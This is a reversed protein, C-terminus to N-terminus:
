YVKLKGNALYENKYYPKYKDFVTELTLGTEIDTLVDMECDEVKLKDSTYAEADNDWIMSVRIKKFNSGKLIYMYPWRELEVVEKFKEFSYEVYEDKSSDYPSFKSNVELKAMIDDLAVPTGNEIAIFKEAISKTFEFNQTAPNYFYYYKGENVDQRVSRSSCDPYIFKAAWKDFKGVYILSDNNRTKYTVGPRLDKVKITKNDFLRNSYEEIEAYDPCDVPVLVLETGDWGYTFEGDLGKGRISNTNELIYLLNPITIEVEFGRPDQVRVYLQRQNWCSSYGGVKKSLVFGRTPLNDYHENPINEERWEQWSKEKRLVGKEDYYIVFALKGTSVDDRHNFGVNIKRPVFINSSM